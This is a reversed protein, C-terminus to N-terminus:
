YATKRKFAMGFGAEAGGAIQYTSLQDERYSNYVLAYKVISVAMSDTIGNVGDIGQEKFFLEFAADNPAFMTWWGTKALIDKYGAKDIVATLHKFNGRSQLQQYIPDGLGEPREYFTDFENKKCGSLIGTLLLFCCLSTLLRTM